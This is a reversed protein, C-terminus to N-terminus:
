LIAGQRLLEKQIKLIDCAERDGTLAAATGAAQGTVFGTGMVRASALLEHDVYIDRGACWLNSLEAARLCNLPLGYYPRGELDRNTSEYDLRDHMEIPWGALGISEGGAADEAADGATFLRRCVIRRSERIGIRPGTWLLYSNEMGPLFDRLARAYTRALRRTECAARTLSEADLAHLDYNPLTLSVVDGHPAKWVPARMKTMPGYGKERAKVLAREVDDATVTLTRAVGGMYMELTAMQVNGSADGFVTSHGALHAVAGDGTADVFAKASVTFMGEDDACVIQMLRGQKAQASVARAELLLHVGSDLIVQDLACKLAENDYAIIARGYPTILPEVSEGLEALADLVMQGAGGVIKKPEAESSYFGCFSGVSGHTGIGGLYPNREILLTDAGAQKAGVAAGIGAAGGGVVAVECTYHREM